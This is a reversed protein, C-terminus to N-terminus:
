IFEAKPGRRLTVEWAGVGPDAYFRCVTASNSGQRQSWTSQRTELTSTSELDVPSDRSDSTSVQTRQQCRRETQSPSIPLQLALRIDAWLGLVCLFRFSGSCLSRQM